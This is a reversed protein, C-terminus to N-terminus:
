FQDWLTTLGPTLVNARCYGGGERPLQLRARAASRVRSPDLCPQHGPQVAEGPPEGDEAELGLPAELPLDHLAGALGQDIEPSEHGCDCLLELRPIASLNTSEYRKIYKCCSKLLRISLRFTSRSDHVHQPASGEEACSVPKNLRQM